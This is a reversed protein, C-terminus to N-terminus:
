DSEKNKNLSEEKKNKRILEWQEEERSCISSMRLIPYFILFTTIMTILIIKM